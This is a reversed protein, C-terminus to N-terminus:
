LQIRRSCVREWVNGLSHPLFRTEKGEKQVINEFESCISGCELHVQSGSNRKRYSVMESQTAEGM